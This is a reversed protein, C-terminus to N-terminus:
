CKLRPIFIPLVNEFQFLPEDCARLDVALLVVSSSLFSVASIM